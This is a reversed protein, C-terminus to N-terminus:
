IWQEPKDGRILGDVYRQRERSCVAVIEDKMAELMGMNSRTINRANNRKNNAPEEGAEEEVLDAMFNFLKYYYTDEKQGNISTRELDRSSENNNDEYREYITQYIYASELYELALMQLGLKVAAYFDEKDKILVAIDMNALIEKINEATVANDSYTDEEALGRELANTMIRAIDFYVKKPILIEGTELSTKDKLVSVIQYIQERWLIHKDALNRLVSIVNEPDYLTGMKGISREAEKMQKTYNLILNEKEKKDDM